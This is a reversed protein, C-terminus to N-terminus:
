LAKPKGNETEITKFRNVTTRYMAQMEAFTLGM